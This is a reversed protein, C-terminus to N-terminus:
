CASSLLISHVMPNTLIFEGLTPDLTYGNVVGDGTSLVMFTFSGYMAYGAAVMDRGRKAGLRRVMEDNSSAENTYVGFITGISVGSDINSSGDLPDFVVIYKNRHDVIIPEELEESVLMAVKGCSVLSNVFIENALVDLKKQQEGQVNSEGALGTRSSMCSSAQLYIYLNALGAKRVLSSVFKCGLQISVLLLTLDGHADAHKSQEHLVHRTLTCLDTDIDDIRSKRVVSTPAPIM